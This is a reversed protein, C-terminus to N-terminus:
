FQSPLQDASAGAQAGAAPRPQPDPLSTTVLVARDEGHEHGGAQRIGQRAGRPALRESERRSDIARGELRLVSSRFILLSETLQDGSLISRIKAVQDDQIANLAPRNKEKLEHYRRRTEDLIPVLQSVQQETLKLRTRMEAVYQRRYEEPTKPNSASVSKLTYLRLAFAGVVAGSLFVLLLYLATTLTTRRM